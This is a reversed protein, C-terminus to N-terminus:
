AASRRGIESPAQAVRANWALKREQFEIARQLGKIAKKQLEAKCMAYRAFLSTPDVPVGFEADGAAIGAVIVQTAAVDGTSQAETRLVAILVM